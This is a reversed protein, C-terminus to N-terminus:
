FNHKKIMELINEHSSSNVVGQVFLNICYEESSFLSILSKNSRIIYGIELATNIGVYGNPNYLICLRAQNIKFLHDYVLGNCAWQNVKDNITEFNHYPPCNCNYGKLNLYKNLEKIENSFRRSGIIIIM